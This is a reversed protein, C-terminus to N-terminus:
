IHAVTGAAFDNGLCWNRSGWHCRHVQKLLLNQTHVGSMGLCWSQPHLGASQLETKVFKRSWLAACPPSMHHLCEWRDQTWTLLIMPYDRLIQAELIYLPPKLDEQQGERNLSVTGFRCVRFACESRPRQTWRELKTGRFKQYAQWGHRWSTGWLMWLSPQASLWLDKASWVEELRSSIWPFAGSM